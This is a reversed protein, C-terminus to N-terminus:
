LKHLLRDIARFQTNTVEVPVLEYALGKNIALRM